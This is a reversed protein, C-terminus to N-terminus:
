RLDSKRPLASRMAVMCLSFPLIVLSSYSLPFLNRTSISPFVPKPLSRKFTAGRMPAEDHGGGHFLKAAELSRGELVSVANGALKPRDGKERLERGTAYTVVNVGVKTSYQIDDLLKGFKAGAAEMKRVVGPRDANWLCALNRPCYVVSTKCCARVGWLPRRDPFKLSYHSTWIPHNTPLLEMPSDPFLENMLARFSLDFKAPACGEGQCADAFLFGGNELYKKLNEKQFDTLVFAGNGSMFLVPTELLDEITAKPGKVEQWNLKQGWAKELNRTLYHVGKDHLLDNDDEFLYKGIAIPRKGKSLFLLSMASAVNIDESSSGTWSNGNAQTDVLRASGERYWDHAGFFRRGSLRGARELGYLLYYRWQRQLLSFNRGIYEVTLKEHDEADSTGCCTINAGDFMATLDPLNEDIIISSALGAAAMTLRTGNDRTSYGYGGGRVRCNEWYKKVRQWTEEKVVAGMQSAEHLALLAFQTNSSDSARMKGTRGYAWGGDNSQVKQLWDVDEQVKQLYKKGAPDATALCMIRLALFYTRRNREKLVADIGKLIAPSDKRESANLLALTCLATAGNEVDGVNKWTGGGSQRDELARVGNSIANRVEEASVERAPRTPRARGRFLRIGQAEVPSIPFCISGIFLLLGFTRVHSM